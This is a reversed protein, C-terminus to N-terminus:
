SRDEPAGDPASRGPPPEPHNGLPSTEDYFDLADPDGFPAPGASVPPRGVFPPPPAGPPGIPPGTPPGSPPGSPAPAGGAFGPGSQPGPQAAPAGYPGRSWQAEPSEQSGTAGQQGPAAFPGGYGPVGPQGPRVYPGPAGYSGPAAGWPGAGGAPASGYPGPRGPASGPSGYGPGGPGSGGYGPPGYGPPGYGPPGYGPPGYGPPGYGPPGYGPPGYGPAGFGAGYGGYAYAPRAPPPFLRKRSGSRKVAVVILLVIGALSGVGMVSIGSLILGATRGGADQGVAVRDVTSPAPTPFYTTTSRSSPTIPRNPNDTVVSEVVSFTYAGPSGVSITGVEYGRYGQYTYSSYSSVSRKAVPIQTGAADKVTVRPPDITSYYYSTDSSEGYLQYTGAVPLQLTREGPVSVRQYGDPADVVTVIGIIVLTFGAALGLVLLAAGIWYWVVSPSIDKKTPAISSSGARDGGPRPSAPAGAPSTMVAM